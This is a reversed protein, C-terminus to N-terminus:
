VTVRGAPHRMVEPDDVAREFADLHDRHVYWRKGVKRAKLRKTRILWRVRESAARDGEPAGYLRTAVEEVCLLKVQEVPLPVDDPLDEKAGAHQQVPALEFLDGFSLEPFTALLATVFVADLDAEGSLTRHVTSRDVGMAEALGPQGKIGTLAMYKTLQGDNKLRILAYTM